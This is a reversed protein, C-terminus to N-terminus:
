VAEVPHEVLKGGGVALDAGEVLPQRALNLRRGLIQRALVHGEFLEVAQEIFQAPFVGRLHAQGGEALQGGLEGM